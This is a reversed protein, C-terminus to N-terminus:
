FHPPVTILIAQAIVFYGYWVRWSGLDNTGPCSCRPASHFPPCPNGHNYAFNPVPNLDSFKPQKPWSGRFVCLVCLDTSVNKSRKDGMGILRPTEQRNVCVVCDWCDCWSIFFSLVYM